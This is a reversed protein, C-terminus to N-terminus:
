FAQSGGAGRELKPASSPVPKQRPLGMALKQPAGRPLGAGHRCNQLLAVGTGHCCGGSLWGPGKALTM